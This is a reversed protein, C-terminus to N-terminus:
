RQGTKALLRVLRVDGQPDGQASLLATRLYLLKKDPDSMDLMDRDIKTWDIGGFLVRSVVAALRVDVTRRLIGRAVFRPAEREGCFHTLVTEAGEETDVKQEVLELLAAQDRWDPLECAARAAEFQQVVDVATTASRLRKQWLVIREALPRNA